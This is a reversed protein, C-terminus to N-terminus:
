VSCFAMFILAKSKQARLVLLTNPKIFFIHGMYVTVTVSGFSIDVSGEICILIGPGSVGSLSEFSGVPMETRWITFEDIPPDYIKTNVSGAVPEGRMIQASASASRYTLMKILTGVDKYKPTLGARVVNDSTAM